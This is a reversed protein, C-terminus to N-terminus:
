GNSDLELWVLRQIFRGMIPHSQLYQQWDEMRWQHQVCMAEYFRSIQM